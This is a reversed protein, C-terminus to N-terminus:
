QLGVRDTFLFVLDEAAQQREQRLVHHATLVNAIALLAANMGLRIGLRENRQFAEDVIPTPGAHREIQTSALAQRLTLADDRDGEAFRRLAHERRARADTRLPGIM